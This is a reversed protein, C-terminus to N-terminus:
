KQQSFPPPEPPPNNEIFENLFNTFTNKNLEDLGDGYEDYLKSGFDIAWTAYAHDCFSTLDCDGFEKTDGTTGYRNLQFAGAGVKLTTDGLGAARGIFGFHMNAVFDFHLENGGVIISKRDELTKGEIDVKLDWLGRTRVLGIFARMAGLKNGPHYDELHARISQNVPSQGNEKVRDVLWETMDASTPAPPRIGEGKIPPTTFVDQGNSVGYYATYMTAAGVVIGYGVGICVMTDLGFVCHGSPDTYKLPNNRTYRYRNFGGSSGPEPVISDPSVFRGLVPSYYRANYDMLGFGRENRQSTFGFDTVSTGNSWREQGYPLYRVESVINQSSDTTLSTSGLHDGSLYYVEDGQRM